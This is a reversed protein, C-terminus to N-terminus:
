QKVVRTTEKVSRDKIWSQAEEVSNFSREIDVWFLFIFSEQVQYYKYYGDKKVEIIRYRSM